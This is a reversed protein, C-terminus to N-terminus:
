LPPPVAFSARFVTSRPFVRKKKLAVRQVGFNKFYKPFFSARRSSLPKREDLKATFHVHSNPPFVASVKAAM